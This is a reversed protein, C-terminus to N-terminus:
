KIKNEGTKIMILIIKKKIEKKKKHANKTIMMTNHINGNCKIVRDQDTNFYDALPM